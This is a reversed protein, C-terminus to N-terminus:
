GLPSLHREFWDTAQAAVQGPEVVALRKEIAGLVSLARQNSDYLSGGPDSVMLLM